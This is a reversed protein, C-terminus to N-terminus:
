KKAKIAPLTEGADQPSAKDDADIIEMDLRVESLWEPKVVPRGKDDVPPRVTLVVPQSEIFESKAKGNQVLWKATIMYTGVRKPCFEFEKGKERRNRVDFGFGHATGIASILGDFDSAPDVGEYRRSDLLVVRGREPQYRGIRVIDHSFSYAEEFAARAPIVETLRVTDGPEVVTKDLRLLIEVEPTKPSDADGARSDAPRGWALAAWGVFCIRLVRM